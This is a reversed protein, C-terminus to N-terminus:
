NKKTCLTDEVKAHENMDDVIKQYDDVNKSCQCGAAHAHGGGHYKAAIPQVYYGDVSRLEVRMTGDPMEAFLIHMPALGMLANVKSSGVDYTIGFKEYDEMTVVSYAVERDIIANKRLWKLYKEMVPDRPYLIANMEKESCGYKKLLRRIKYTHDTVGSFKFRGSDTVIGAYIAEAAKKNIPWKNEIAMDAIMEACAIKSPDVWNDWDFDEGENAEHHDIKVWAKCLFVRPDEVRRLCSVDVLIGLSEKITEEDIEDMHGIRDLAKKYGSGIAYVKKNPFADSIINKLAMQCGYCDGDPMTHGWVTIVDHKRILETIKKAEENM